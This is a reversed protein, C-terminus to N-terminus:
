TRKPATQVPYRAALCWALLLCPFPLLMAVTPGPLRFALGPVMRQTLWDSLGHATGLPTLGVGAQRAAAFLTGVAATRAVAEPGSPLHYLGFVLSGLGLGIWRDRGFMEMWLGRFWLEETLGVLFLLRALETAALLAGGRPGMGRVTFVTEIGQLGLLVALALRTGRMDLLSLEERYWRRRIAEGVALQLLSLSILGPFPDTPRLQRVLQMVWISGLMFGVWVFM